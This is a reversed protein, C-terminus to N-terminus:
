EPYKEMGLKIMLNYFQHRLRNMHGWMRKLHEKRQERPLKNVLSVGRLAADLRRKVDDLEKEMPGDHNAIDGETLKQTVKGLLNTYSECLKSLKDTQEKVYSDESLEQIFKM